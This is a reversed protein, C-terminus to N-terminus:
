ETTAVAELRVGYRRLATNAVDILLKPNKEVLSGLCAAVLFVARRAVAAKNSGTATYNHLMANLGLRRVQNVMATVRAPSLEAFNDDGPDLSSPPTTPEAAASDPPKIDSANEDPAGDDAVVDDAAADGDATHAGDDAAAAEPSEVADSEIMPPAPPPLASPPTSLKIPLAPPALRRAKELRLERVSPRQPSACWDLLEDQMSEPLAVLEAHHKFSILERRRSIPFRKAVAAYNELTRREPGDWGLPLIRTDGGALYWDAWLWPTARELARIADGTQLWGETSLSAPAIWGCPTFSGRDMLGPLTVMSTSPTFEAPETADFARRL